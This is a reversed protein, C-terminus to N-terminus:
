KSVIPPRKRANRLWTITDEISRAFVKISPLDEPYILRTLGYLSKIFESTEGTRIPADSHALIPVLHSAIMRAVYTHPQPAPGQASVKASLIDNVNDTAGRPMRLVSIAQHWLSRHNDFSASDPFRAVDQQLIGAAAKLTARERQQKVIAKKLVATSESTWPEEIYNNILGSLLIWADPAPLRADRYYTSLIQAIENENTFHRGPAPRRENFGIM